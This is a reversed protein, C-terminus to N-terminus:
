HSWQLKLLDTNQKFDGNDGRTHVLIASRNDSIKVFLEQPVFVKDLTGAKYSLISQSPLFPAVKVALFSSFRIAM